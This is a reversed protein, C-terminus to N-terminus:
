KMKAEEAHHKYSLVYLKFFADIGMMMEVSFKDKDFTEIYQQLKDQIDLSESLKKQTEERGLTRVKKNLVNTLYEKKVLITAQNLDKVIQKWRSKFSNNKEEDM